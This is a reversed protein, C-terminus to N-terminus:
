LPREICIPTVERFTVAIGYDDALMSEIVEKQVEGYLSVSLESSGEDLRVNILPDQEDLQALATRLRSRDDQDVAEVVSELTPPPFEHAPEGATADGLRDGIRVDHLGWVKAIAGESASTRREAPGSDFVALATVKGEGDAGFRVRDRVNLTGAFLRAYAIKEGGEGREIKFVRAAVADDGNRASTPLLEVIASL